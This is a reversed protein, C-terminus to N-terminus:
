TPCRALHTKFPTNEQWLTFHGSLIESSCTSGSLSHSTGSKNLRALLQKCTGSRLLREQKQVVRGQAMARALQQDGVGDNAQSPRSRRSTLGAWSSKIEDTSKTVAPDTQRNKQAVAVQCRQMMELVLIPLRQVGSCYQCPQAEWKLFLTPHVDLQFARQKCICFMDPFLDLNNIEIPAAIHASQYGTTEVKTQDSALSLCSCFTIRIQRKTICASICACFTICGTRNTNRKQFRYPTPMEVLFNM